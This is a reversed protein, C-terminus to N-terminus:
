SIKVHCEDNRILIWTVYKTGRDNTTYRITDYKTTPLIHRVDMIGLKSILNYTWSIM